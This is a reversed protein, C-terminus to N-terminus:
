MEKVGRELDDITCKAVDVAREMFSQKIPLSAAGPVFLTLVDSLSVVGQEEYAYMCSKVQPRCDEDCIWVRHIKQKMMHRVATQVTLARTICGAANKHVMEAQNSTGAPHVQELFVGVSAHELLDLNSKNLHRLDAISLTGCLKDRSDVLAVASVQEMFMERFCNMATSTIPCTMLTSSFPNDNVTQVHRAFLMNAVSINLGFVAKLDHSRQKKMEEELFRVLDSETIM